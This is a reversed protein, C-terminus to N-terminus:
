LFVRKLFFFRSKNLLKLHMSLNLSFECGNQDEGAKGFHRNKLISTTESDNDTVSKKTEKENERPESM